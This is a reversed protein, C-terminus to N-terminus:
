PLMFSYMSAESGASDGMMYPICGLASSDSSVDWTLHCILTVEADHMFAALEPIQTEVLQVFLPM